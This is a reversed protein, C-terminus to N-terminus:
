PLKVTFTDGGAGDPKMAARVTVSKIDAAIRVGGVSRTFPQEGVHPHALIRTGLVTGDPGVIEFRDCYYDWGKDNSKITVDFRWSSSGTSTAVANLVDAEGAESVGCFFMLSLSVSAILSRRNKM